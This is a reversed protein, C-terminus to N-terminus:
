SGPGAVPSKECCRELLMCLLRAHKFLLDKRHGIM